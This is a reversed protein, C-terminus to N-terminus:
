HYNKIATIRKLEEKAKKITQPSSTRDKEAAKLHYSANKYDGNLWFFMGLQYHGEGSRGGDALLKGLQFHLKDFEPVQVLLQRYLKEAKVSDGLRSLLKALNYKSWADDPNAELAEQEYKLAQHYRGQRYFIIGSDTKLIPKNPYAKIVKNLAQEAKGYDGNELNLLYLGYSAFIKLPKKAQAAQRTYLVRRSESDMTKAMLRYKVRLFAFNDLPPYKHPPASLLMDDIYALRSKPVPHSLLYPPVNAMQYASLRYMKKLMAAMPAPNMNMARMWKYALRDAEEEDQRSFHLRMSANAAMSGGILAQSLAGGGLAIGALLLAATGISTKKNQEIQRSIHRCTVHACEHAMVSVLEGENDMAEILGSHIFILGSPAAFANFANNKIVFFHYKFYQPGAVKLIRRGLDNIYQSIDPDDIVTFQTRVMSLLKEGVKKEEGVSFARCPLCPQIIFATILSAILLGKFLSFPKKLINM